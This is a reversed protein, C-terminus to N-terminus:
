KRVLPPMRRPEPLPEGDLDLERILRAFAIRSDREVSIAPHCKLVGSPNEVYAGDTAIRKRAEVLRDWAEAALTLLKLHHPELVYDKVVSRWWKRTPEALHSPASPIPHRQPRAFSPLPQVAM